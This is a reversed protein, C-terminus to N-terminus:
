LSVCALTIWIKEQKIKKIMAVASATLAEKDSQSVPDDTASRKSSKSSAVEPSISLDTIQIPIQRSDFFGTKNVEPTTM